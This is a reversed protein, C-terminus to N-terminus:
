KTEAGEQHDWGEPHRREPQAWPPRDLPIEETPNSYKPWALEERPKERGRRMGNAEFWCKHGDIIRYVWKGPGPNDRCSTVEGFTVAISLVLLGLILAAIILDRKM